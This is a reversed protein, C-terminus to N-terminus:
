EAVPVMEIHYFFHMLFVVNLRFSAVKLSKGVNMSMKMVDVVAKLLYGQFYLNLGM